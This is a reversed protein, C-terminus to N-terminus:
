IKSMVLKTSTSSLKLRLKKTAVGTEAERKNSDIRKVTM